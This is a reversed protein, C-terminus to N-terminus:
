FTKVELQMSTTWVKQQTDLQHQVGVVLFEIGDVIVSDLLEVEANGPVTMSGLWRFAGRREAITTILNTFQDFTLVGPIAKFYWRSWPIVPTTDIEAKGWWVQGFRVQPPTAQAQKQDDEPMGGIESLLIAVNAIHSLEVQAEFNIQEDSEYTWISADGPQSLAPIYKLVGFRNIFWVYQAEDAVANLCDKIPTGSQFDEAWVQPDTTSKLQFLEADSLDLEIGALDTLYQVVIRHDFADFPPADIIRIDEMKQELGKLGLNNNTIDTALQPGAGWTIGTYVRGPTTNEGGVMDIEIAGIEQDIGVGDEYQDFLIKGQGGELNRQVEVSLINQNQPTGPGGDIAVTGTRNKIGMLDFQNYKRYTIYGWTQFPFVERETTALNSKWRVSYLDSSANTTKQSGWLWGATNRCFIPIVKEEDPTTTKKHVDSVGGKYTFYLQKFQVQGGCRNMSVYLKTYAPTGDLEIAQPGGGLSGGTATPFIRDPSGLTCVDAPNGTDLKLKKAIELELEKEPDYVIYAAERLRLSENDYRQNTILIGNWVPIIAMDYTKTRTNEKFKFPLDVRKGKGNTKDKDTIVTIQSSDEEIIITIIPTLVDNTLLIKVFSPDEYSPQSDASTRKQGPEVVMRITFAGGSYDSMWIEVLDLGAWVRIYEQPTNEVRPLITGNVTVRQNTAPTQLVWSYAPTGWRGDGLIGNKVAKTGFPSDWASLIGVETQAGAPRGNQLRNRTAAPEGDTSSPVAGSAADQVTTIATRSQAATQGFTIGGPPSALDEYTAQQKEVGMLIWDYRQLQIFDGTEDPAPDVSSIAAYPNTADTILPM